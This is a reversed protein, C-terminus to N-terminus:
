AASGGIPAAPVGVVTVGAPVDRIVAAGAGITAWAGVAVGPIVAANTGVTVGDALRVAGSLTVGPSIAVFDGLECDHAVAANQDIRGHRGIRVNTTIAAGAAVITGAGLTVRRPGVTAAPHVLVAAELGAATAVADVSQRIRNDGIAIVYRTGPPLTPLVEDDGLVPGRDTLLEDVPGALPLFGLFDWTQEVVNLAEVLDHVERALGGAGVIVLPETV